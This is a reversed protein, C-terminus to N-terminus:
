YYCLPHIDTTISLTYILLIIDTTDNTISLTYILIKTYKFPLFYSKSVDAFLAVNLHILSYDQPCRKYWYWVCIVLGSLFLQNVTKSVIVLQNVTKFVIVLQNVTKFVIVLQNVTKSVIVLQNVTKSVICLQNLTKSVIFLHNVTKSVIVIVLQNM